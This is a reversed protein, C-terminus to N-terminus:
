CGFTSPISIENNITITHDNSYIEPVFDKGSLDWNLDISLESM